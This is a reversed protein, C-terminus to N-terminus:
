VAGTTSDRQLNLAAAGQMLVLFPSDKSNQFPIEGNVAMPPERITFDEDVPTVPFKIADTELNTWYM